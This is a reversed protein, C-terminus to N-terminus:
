ACNPPAPARGAHGRRRPRRRLAGMEHAARSEVAHPRHPPPGGPVPRRWAGGAPPPARAAPPHNKGLLEPDFLHPAESFRALAVPGDGGIERVVRPRHRAECAGRMADLVPNFLGPLFRSLYERAHFQRLGHAEGASPLHGGLAEELWEPFRPLFKGGRLDSEAIPSPSKKRRPLCRRQPWSAACLVLALCPVFPVVAHWDRSRRKRPVCNAPPRDATVPPVGTKRGGVSPGVADNRIPGGFNNMPPPRPGPRDARDAAPSGSRRARHTLFLAGAAARM